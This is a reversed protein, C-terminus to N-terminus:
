QNISRVTSNTKKRHLFIKQEGVELLAVENETLNQRMMEARLITSAEGLTDISESFTDFHIPMLWRAQLDKYIQIAEIPDSHRVKSYERPHIPAIPVLALDIGPFRQGLEVFITPDYATDGAFYVKIGNYAVLYGTYSRKMWADDLGYRWGNHIAPVATIRLGDKEWSEWTKLQDSEFSFNPIYVLGGEPVLLQKTKFEILDLSGLSLHDVHMHSVLVVDLPPINQVNVGTEILRKSIYGVTNTLIPDTLIFKNDIQILVTAHGIWLVALRAEPQYPHQIKNLIPTPTSFFSTVNHGMAKFIPNVTSCSMHMLCSSIILLFAKKM